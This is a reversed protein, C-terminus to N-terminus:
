NQCIGDYSFVDVKLLIVLGLLTKMNSNLLMFVVMFTQINRKSHIQKQETQPRFCNKLLHIKHIYLYIFNGLRIKIVVNRMYFNNQINEFDTNSPQNQIFQLEDVVAKLAAM